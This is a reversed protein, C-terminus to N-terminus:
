TKQQIQELCIDIRDIGAGSFRGDVYIRYQMIVEHAEQIKASEAFIPALFHELAHADM